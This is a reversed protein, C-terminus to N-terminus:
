NRRWPTAAIVRVDVDQLDEREHEALRQAGCQCAEIVWMRGPSPHEGVSVLDVLGRGCVACPGDPEECLMKLVCQTVTRAM